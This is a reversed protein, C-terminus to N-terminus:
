EDEGARRLIVAHRQADLGPVTLPHVAELTFGKMAEDLEDQPYVGKMALVMGGQTCLRGAKRVIEALSTWARATVTDFPEAEFSEVRAQVPELADLGLERRIHRLFRVKKGASDLLVVHRQPNLVALVVGPLGAGTGVDLIRNGEVWAHISASDLIHRVVMEDIVRVATLNYTQNWRALEHLYRELLDLQDESADIGLRKLGAQLTPKLEAKATM